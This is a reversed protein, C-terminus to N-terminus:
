KCSNYNLEKLITETKNVLTLLSFEKVIRERCTEKAIPKQVILQLWADVLAETNGPQIVLGAQGVISASDGVDTVVCPVGCAMAEAIVNPFGESLSSSCVIDLANYVAPMDTREGAWIILEALGLKEALRCLEQRYDMSGDGVCVFRVDKHQKGLLAAAQLFTPHDKIPDLRGVIGILTEGESVRWEEHVKIGAESNPCFQCTDIGNPVIVSSKCRYGQTKHYTLGAQSNAILLPVSASVLKCLYFPLARKWNLKLSSARIGWVLNVEPKGQIALWAILNSIYLTSYVIKFSNKRLLHRLKVVSWALQLGAIIVSKTKTEFLAQVQIGQRNQLWDWYQGGSYVTVVSIDHGRQALGQALQSIQREAGGTKLTDIFFLIKM